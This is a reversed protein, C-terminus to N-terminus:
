NGPQYDGPFSRIIIREGSLDYIDVDNGGDRIDAIVIEDKGDGNVDGVAFGDGTEFDGPFSRKVGFQNIIDVMGRGDGFLVIEEVRDGDVDGVALGNGPEYDGDFSRLKVGFQNYIEVMENSTGGLYILAPTGAEACSRAGNDDPTGTTFPTASVRTTRQLPALTSSALLTSALLVLGIHFRHRGRMRVTTHLRNM